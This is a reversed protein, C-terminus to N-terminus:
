SINIYTTITAWKFDAQRRVTKILKPDWSGTHAVTATRSLTALERATDRCDFPGPGQGHPQEWPEKAFNLCVDQHGPRLRSYVIM